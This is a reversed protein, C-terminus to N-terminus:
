KKQYKKQVTRLKHEQPGPAHSRRLCLVAELVQRKHPWDELRRGGHNLLCWQHLGRTNRITWGVKIHSKSKTKHTTIIPRRLALSLIKLKSLGQASRRASHRPYGHKTANWINNLNSGDKTSHKRSKFDYSQM